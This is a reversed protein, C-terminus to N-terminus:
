DLTNFTVEYPESEQNNRRLFSVMAHNGTSAENFGTLTLCDTTSSGSKLIPNGYADNYRVNIAIIEPDDPLVYKMEAGGMVPTFEFQEPSIEVSFLEADDKCSTLSVVALAFYLIKKM